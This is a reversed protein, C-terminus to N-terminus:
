RQVVAAYKKIFKEFVVKKRKLYLNNSTNYM